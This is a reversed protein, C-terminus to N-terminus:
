NERNSNNKEDIALRQALLRLLQEQRSRDIDMTLMKILLLGLGILVALLPPYKVGLFHGLYDILQPFAGIFLIAVAVVIWWIAYRTYLLNKRVLVFILSAICLGIIFSIIQVSTIM